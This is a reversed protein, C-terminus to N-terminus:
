AQAKRGRRPESDGELPKLILEYGEVTVEEITVPLYHFTADVEERREYAEQEDPAVGYKEHDGCTYRYLKM